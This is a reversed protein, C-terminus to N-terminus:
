CSSSPPACGLVATWVTLQESDLRLLASETQEIRISLAELEEASSKGDNEDAGLKQEADEEAVANLSASSSATPPAAAIAKSPVAAPLAKRSNVRAKRPPVAASVLGASTAATIKVVPPKAVKSEAARRGRPLVRSRSVSAEAPRDGSDGGDGSDASNNGGKVDTGSATGATARAVIQSKLSEPKPKPKLKVVAKKEASKGASKGAVATATPLLPPLKTPPRRPPLPPPPPSAPLSPPTKQDSLVLPSAVSQGIPADGEPDSGLACAAARETRDMEGAVEAQSRGLKSRVDRRATNLKAKAIAEDRAAQKNLLDKQEARLAKLLKRLEIQRESLDTMHAAATVAVDAEAKRAAAGKDASFKEEDDSHLAKAIAEYANLANRLFASGGSGALADRFAFLPQAALWDTLAQAYAAADSNPARVPPPATTLVRSMASLADFLRDLHACAEHVAARTDRARHAGPRASVVEAAWDSLTQEAREMAVTQQGMRSLWQAIGDAFAAAKSKLSTLLHGRVPAGSEAAWQKLEECAHMLAAIAARVGDADTQTRGALAILSFEEPGARGVCNFCLDILIDAAFHARRPGHM